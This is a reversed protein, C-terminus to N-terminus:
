HLPTIAKEPRLRVGPADGNMFEIGRKELAWRIKELTTSRTTHKGNELNLVSQRSVGAAAALEDQTIKLLERAASIHRGDIKKATSM